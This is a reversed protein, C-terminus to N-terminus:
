LSALCVVFLPTGAMTEPMRTHRMLTTCLVLESIKPSKAYRFLQRTVASLTGTVKVEMGLKTAPFFFDIRDCYSREAALHYEREYTVRAEDLRKALADQLALESQVNAEFGSLYDVLADGTM